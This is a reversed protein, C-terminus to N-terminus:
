RKIWYPCDKGESTLPMLFCMDRGCTKCLKEVLQNVKDEGYRKQIIRQLSERDAVIARRQKSTLVSM